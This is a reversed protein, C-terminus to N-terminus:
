GTVYSTAAQKVQTKTVQVTRKATRTREQDTVTATNVIRGAPVDRDVRVTFRKTFSKGPALRKITLCLKGNRMTGGAKGVVTLGKPLTDCLRENVADENGNRSATVMLTYTIRQGGRVTKRNARKVISLAHSKAVADPSIQTPPVLPPVGPPVVPPVVPPNTPPTVPPDTPPVVPPDPLKVLGADYSLDQQNARIAIPSAITIAGTRGTAQDADSDKETDSGAGQTTFGYGDKAFTLRYDGSRLTFHGDDTAFTYQGSADTVVSREVGDGDKDTGTLTVTVGPIGPEGADQIGNANLDEWVFDGLNSAV